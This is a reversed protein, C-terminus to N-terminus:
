ESTKSMNVMEFEFETTTRKAAKPKVTNPKRKTTRTSSRRSKNQKRGLTCWWLFIVLIAITGLTGFIGSYWYHRKNSEARHEELKRISNAWNDFQEGEELLGNNHDMASSVKVSREIQKIYNKGDNLTNFANLTFNPLVGDDPYTIRILENNRKNLISTGYVRDSFHLEGNGFITLVGTGNLQLEILDNDSGVIKVYKETRFQFLWRNANVMRVFIEKTPIVKYECLDDRMIKNKLLQIICSDDGKLVPGTQKCLLFPQNEEKSIKICGEYGDHDMDVFNTKAVNSAIYQTNLDYIVSIGHHIRPILYIKSLQYVDMTPIPVSVRVILSQNKITHDLELVKFLNLEDYPTTIKLKARLKNYIETMTNKGIISPHLHGNQISAIISQVERQDNEIEVLEMYVTDVLEIVDLHRYMGDQLRQDRELHRIIEGVTKRTQNQEDHLIRLSENVSKRLNGVVYVADKSVEILRDQTLETNKLREYIQNADKNDMVGIIYHLANGLGDALSRKTKSHSELVHQIESNRNVAKRLQQNVIRSKLLCKNVPRNGTPENTCNLPERKIGPGTNVNATNGTVEKHIINCRTYTEHGIEMCLENIKSLYMSLIKLHEEHNSVEVSIYVCFKDQYFQVTAIEEFAAGTNNIQEMVYRETTTRGRGLLETKGVVFSNQSGVCM